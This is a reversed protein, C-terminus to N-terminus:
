AVLSKELLSRYMKSSRKSNGHDLASTFIGFGPFLNYRIWLDFVDVLPEPQENRVCDKNNELNRKMVLRKSMEFDSPM